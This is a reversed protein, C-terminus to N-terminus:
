AGEVLHALGLKAYNVTMFGEIEPGLAEPAHAAVEDAMVGTRKARDAADWHYNYTYLGLKGHTGVKEIDRKTRPDSGGGAAYANAASQGMQAAMDFFSKKNKTTSKSNITQGTFNGIPVNGFLSGAAELQAVPAGLKAQEIERQLAGLDATMALDARENAGMSNSINATLGAAELARQLAAEKASANFMSNENAASTNFQGESADLAAQNFLRENFFGANMGSADQRRGADMNSMNAAQTFARARLEADTLARGRDSNAAFEGQAVGFRSGGFAGGRAANAAFAAAQRGTQNDYEALTAKVLADTSPDLYSKLNTLLSQAAVNQTAGITPADYTSFSATSAPGQGATQAMKIAKDSGAKWEGLDDAGAFAKNQLESPGAIYQAPDSNMFNTVKGTYGQLPQAIWEPVKPTTTAMSKTKSKSSSLGM